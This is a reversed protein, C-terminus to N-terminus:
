VLGRAVMVQWRHNAPPHTMDTFTFRVKCTANNSPLRVAPHVTGQFRNVSAVAEGNVSLQVMPFDSQQVVVGVVDGKKVKCPRLWDTGDDLLSLSSSAHKAEVETTDSETDTKSSCYLTTLPSSSSERCVCERSECCVQQQRLIRRKSANIFSAIKGRPSGSWCCTRM